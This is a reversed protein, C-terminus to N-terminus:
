VEVHYLNNRGIVYEYNSLPPCLLNYLCSKCPMVNKRLKRWSKGNYLEYYLAKSLTDTNLNGIPDHNVNAYIQGDNMITIKGQNSLNLTEKAFFDKHKQLSSLIDKENYFVNESFFSANKGDFNVYANVLLLCKREVM